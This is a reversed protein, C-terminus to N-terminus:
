EKDSINQSVLEMLKRQKLYLKIINNVRRYVIRSDFPRSIYDSAGMDYARRITENSDETSIMIVPIEDLLKDKNMRKLVGFGDIGPMLIDLLVVSLQNGYQEIMDIGEAGDRAELIQYDEQLINTLIDRNIDSDDIILIKQKNGDPEKYEPQEGDLETIVINKYKKAKYMLNDARGVAQEITENGSVVGGISVSMQIRTYGPVDADNIKKQIQRLKDRLAQISIGPIVLLFEDGGYRILMDSSRICENISKAATVLAMDGASHGFTDNYIKFDDLDIVALGVSEDMHKVKDEYYRRNYAGTLVDEYLKKSFGTMEMVLKECDGPDSMMENDIRKLMELSYKKGDIELYKAIVEYIDSDLYELKVRQDKCEIACQSVCNDCRHRRNWFEYCECYKINNNEDLEHLSDAELLRVVDFVERLHKIMERAEKMTMVYNQDM